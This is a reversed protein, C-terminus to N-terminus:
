RPCYVNRLAKKKVQSVFGEITTEGKIVLLDAITLVPFHNVIFEKATDASSFYYWCPADFKYDCRKKEVFHSNVDVCWVFNGKYIKVGDKGTFLSRRGSKTTQM